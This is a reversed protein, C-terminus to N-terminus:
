PKASSIMPPPAMIATHRSLQYEVLALREQHDFISTVVWVLLSVLSLTAPVALALALKFMVSWFGPLNITENGNRISM